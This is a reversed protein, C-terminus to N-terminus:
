NVKARKIAAIATTIWLARKNVDPLNNFGIEMYFNDYLTNITKRIKITVVDAEVLCALLFLPLIGCM